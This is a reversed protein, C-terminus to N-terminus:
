QRLSPSDLGESFYPSKRGVIILYYLEDNYEIIGDEREVNLMYDYVKNIEDFKTKSLDIEM